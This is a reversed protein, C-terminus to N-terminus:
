ERFTFLGWGRDEPEPSNVNQSVIKDVSALRALARALRQRAPVAVIWAGYRRAARTGADGDRLTPSVNGFACEGSASITMELLGEAGQTVGWGSERIGGFPTGAHATPAIVDNVTVM